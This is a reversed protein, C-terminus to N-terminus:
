EQFLFENTTLLAHCLQVWAERRKDQTAAPPEYDDLFRLALQMEEPAAPRNLARLYLRAVRKADASEDDGLLLAATRDAQEKVFPSNLLFLAQTPVTTGRHAATIQDPNPFDFVNLIELHGAPLRRFLAQYITRRNRVSEPITKGTYIPPAIKGEINTVNGPIDLGLSSGGGSRDLQGSVMLLADRIAEAEHRRRNMDGSSGITRTSKWPRPTTRARWRTPPSLVMERIMAKISWGKERLGLALYDLLEPHSPRDGRTGFYDVSRVLGRGFLHHWVRNVTVRATM